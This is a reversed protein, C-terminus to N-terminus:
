LNLYAVDLRSHRLPNDNGLWTGSRITYRQSDRPLPEVKEM